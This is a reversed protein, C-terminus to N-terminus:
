PREEEGGGDEDDSDAADGGLSEGGPRDEEPDGEGEEEDLMASVADFQEPEELSLSELFELEDRYSEEGESEEDAEEAPLDGGPSPSPTAGPSSPIDEAGFEEGRASTPEEEPGGDEDEAEGEPGGAAEAVAAVVDRLQAVAEEETELRDGLEGIRREHEERDSEWEEEAYEGVRHRLEAEDRARRHEELEARLEELEAERERLAGELESRHEALRSEVETLRERYDAAVPRYVEPRTDEELDDLRELWEIYTGRRELLDSVEEPVPETERSRERYPLDDPTM